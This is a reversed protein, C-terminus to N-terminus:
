FLCSCLQPIIPLICCGLFLLVYMGLVTYSEMKSAPVEWARDWVERLLHALNAENQIDFLNLSYEMKKLMEPRYHGVEYDKEGENRLRLVMGSMNDEKKAGAFMVMGLVIFFLAFAPHDHRYFSIVYFLSLVLATVILYVLRLNPKHLFILHEIVAYGDFPKVPVLNIASVFVLTNAPVTLDPMEIYSSGILYLAAIGWGFLPGFLSVFAKRGASLGEIGLALPGFIGVGFSATKSGTIRMGLFHGWEHIFLGVVTWRLSIEQHGM